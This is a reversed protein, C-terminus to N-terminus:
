TSSFLEANSSDIGSLLILLEDLRSQTLVSYWGSGSETNMSDPGWCNDMFSVFSGDDPKQSLDYRFVRLVPSGYLESRIPFYKWSDNSYNSWNLIEIIYGFSQTGIYITPLYTFSPPTGLMIDSAPDFERYVEIHKCIGYISAKVQDETVLWTSHPEAEFNNASYKIIYSDEIYLDFGGKFDPSYLEGGNLSPRLALWILFACLVLLLSIILILLKARNRLIYEKM